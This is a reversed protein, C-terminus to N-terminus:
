CIFFYSFIVIGNNKDIVDVSAGRLSLEGKFKDGYPPSDSQKKEYYKIKGNELVFFRTKTNKILGERSRKKLWGLKVSVTM